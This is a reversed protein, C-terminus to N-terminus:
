DEAEWYASKCIEIMVEDNLDCFKYTENMAAMRAHLGCFRSVFIEIAKLYSRAEDPTTYGCAVGEITLSFNRVLYPEIYDSSIEPLKCDM